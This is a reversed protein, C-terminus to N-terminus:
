ISFLSSKPLFEVLSSHTPSGVFSSIHLPMPKDNSQGKSKLSGEPSLPFLELTQLQGDQEEDEGQIYKTDLTSPNMPHSTQLCISESSSETHLSLDENPTQWMRNKRKCSNTVVDKLAMNMMGGEGNFSDWLAGTNNNPSGVRLDNLLQKQPSGYCCGKFELDRKIGSSPLQPTTLDLSFSSLGKSFPMNFLSSSTFIPQSTESAFPLNYFAHGGNSNSMELDNTNNNEAELSIRKTSAAAAALSNRKQKQRERAKHNQFWYFVNKGEIKGYQRLQATIHEIQEANPTRMGGKYFMELIRIQEPTPNWRTGSPHSQACSEVEEKMSQQQQNGATFKHIHDRDKVNVEAEEDMKNINKRDLLCAAASMSLNKTATTSSFVQQSYQDHSQQSWVSANAMPTSTPSISLRPVLPRFRKNLGGNECAFSMSTVTNMSAMRADM